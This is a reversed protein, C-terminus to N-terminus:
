LSRRAQHHFGDRISSSLKAIDGHLSRLSIEPPLAWASPTCSFALETVGYVVEIHWQCALNQQASASALFHSFVELVTMDDVYFWVCPLNLIDGKQNAHGECSWCPQCVRLASIQMVLPMIKSEIPYRTPDSSLSQAALECQTNCSCTCTRSVHSACPLECDPCPRVQELSPQGLIRLLSTREQTSKQKTVRKPDIKM